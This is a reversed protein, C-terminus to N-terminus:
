LSQVTVHVNIFHAMEFPKIHFANYMALPYLFYLYFASSEYFDGSLILSKLHKKLIFCVNLTMRLM